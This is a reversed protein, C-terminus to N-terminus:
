GQSLPTYDFASNLQDNNLQKRKELITVYACYVILGVIMVVLVIVLAILMSQSKSSQSGGQSPSATSTSTDPFPYIWPQTPDGQTIVMRDFVQDNTNDIWEWSLYSSNVAKLVAYGFKYFVEENWSPYPTVYTVTFSAGATGIVMHVTAQPDEHWNVTVTRDANTSPDTITIDRPVSAQVLTKNLVASHRQYVHNHGYFGLNVRYTWLLPELNAIMADMMGIDSTIGGGYNSNLYMARHAGLVVWPTLSRDITRLDHELWLYQDSGISFNHESSIGVFHVLGIDYSWWPKELTAPAPEPFFRLTQVGCEGGSDSAQLTNTGKWDIEHNGVITMYVAGSAVKSVM